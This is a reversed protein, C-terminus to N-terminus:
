ATAIGEEEKDLEMIYTVMHNIDKIPLDPHANMIQAGWVGSGGSKVKSALLDVNAQNNRYKLAVDLYAPGITKRTENHCTRCDSKNLLSEGLTINAEEEDFVMESKILPDKVFMMSISTEGSNSIELAANGHYAEIAGFKEKKMQDLNLKGNTKINSLSSVSHIPINKTISTGDPLNSLTFKRELGIQKSDSEIVEPQEVVKVLRGDPMSLEYMLHVHGDVFKHGKYRSKLPTGAQTWNDQGAPQIYSDGISLPQPGHETNYVAGGFDVKGKWVKYLNGTEASYAAWLKDHLALTLMRPQLDLVSRIAWPNYPRNLDILNSKEDTACTFFLM